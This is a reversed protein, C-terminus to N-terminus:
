AAWELVATAVSSPCARRERTMSLTGKRLLRREGGRGEASGAEGLRAELDAFAGLDRACFRTRFPASSSLELSSVALSSAGVVVPACESEMEGISIVTSSSSSCEDRWRKASPM